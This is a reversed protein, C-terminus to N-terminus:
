TGGAGVYGFYLVANCFFSPGPKCTSIKYENENRLLSDTVGGYRLEYVRYIQGSFVCHFEIGDLIADQGCRSPLEFTKRLTGHDSYVMFQPHVADIYQRVSLDYKTNALYARRGSLLPLGAAYAVINSEVNYDDVVVADNPGIHTRLYNAVDQIRHPYRLVPSVSAFKESYKGPLESMAFVAVNNALLLGALSLPIVAPRTRIRQSLRHVGFGSVVALLTGLTLTYRANAIIGHRMTEYTQVASFFIVLAAFAKVFRPMSTLSAALGYLAAVLCPACLSIALVTPSLALLYALSSRTTALENLVRLHNQTLSYMPDGFYHWSYMLM